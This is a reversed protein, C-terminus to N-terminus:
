WSVSWAAGLREVGCLKQVLTILVFILHGSGFGDRGAQRGAQRWGDMWVYMCVVGVYSALLVNSVVQASSATSQSNLICVYMCVYM